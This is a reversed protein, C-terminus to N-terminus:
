FVAAQSGKANKKPENAFTLLLWVPWTRIVYYQPVNALWKHRLLATIIVCKDRQTSAHTRAHKHPHMLAHAHAYSHTNDRKDLMCRTHAMNHRRKHGRQSWWMKRYRMFPVIKPFFTFHTNQNERRSKDLIKRVRLRIWRSITMFIFVDEHLTGM